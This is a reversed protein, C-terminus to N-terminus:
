DRPAATCCTGRHYALADSKSRVVFSATPQCRPMEVLAATLKNTFPAALSEPGAFVIEFGARETDASGPLRIRV